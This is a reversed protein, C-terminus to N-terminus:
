ELSILWTCAAALLVTAVAMSLLQFPELPEDRAALLLFGVMFVSLGAWAALFPHSRIATQLRRM